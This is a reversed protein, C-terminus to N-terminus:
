FAYGDVMCKRANNWVVNIGLQRAEVADEATFGWRRDMCLVYEINHLDGIRIPYYANNWNSRAYCMLSYQSVWANYSARWGSPRATTHVISFTMAKDGRQFSSSAM